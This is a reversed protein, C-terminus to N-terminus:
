KIYVGKNMENYIDEAIYNNAELTRFRIIQAKIFTESDQLYEQVTGVVGINFSRLELYEKFAKIEEETASYKEIFPFVKNNFTFAPCRTLNYPLARINDLQFEHMDIALDKQEAQRKGLIALDAVGAAASAATGLVAGAAIGAPGAIAGAAGGSVAGQGTGAIAGVVAEIKQFRHEKDMSEINRNFMSEYNKNNLEYEQFRDTLQGYSFDGQCILGRADNFDSGYMNKFNPNIHIYPNFPRLTVDVNFYNVGGNKAVCFEFTGQYNPSVLRYIDCESDVKTSIDTTGKVFQGFKIFDNLFFAWNNSYHTYVDPWGENWPLVEVTFYYDSAEYVSGDIQRIPTGGAKAITMTYEYPAEIDSGDTRLLSISHADFEELLENTTRSRRRIRLNNIDNGQNVNEYTAVENDSLSPSNLILTTIYYEDRSRIVPTKFGVRVDEAEVEISQDINFTFSSDQVYFMIGIRNNSSDHVYDFLKGEDATNILLRDNNGDILAQVPCFPLLQIDYISGSLKAGLTVALNKQLEEKTTFTSNNQDKVQIDGCPIAIIDYMGNFCKARNASMSFTDTVAMTVEEYSLTINYCLAGCTISNTSISSHGAAFIGSSSIATSLTTFLAAGTDDLTYEIRSSGGTVVKVRYYKNDNNNKIIKGNLDLIKNYNTTSLLQSNKTRLFQNMRSILISFGINNAIMSLLSFPVNAKAVGTRLAVNVQAYYDNSVVNGIGSIITKYVLGGATGGPGNQWIIGLQNGVPVSLYEGAVIPFDDVTVISTNKTPDLLLPEDTIAAANTPIYAVIWPIKTKDKLLTESMKIRNFSFNESNFILPNDMSVRAREIIAPASIVDDYKDAIVDRKLTLNWQGGRVRDAKIIFWRSVINYYTDDSYVVLYDFEFQQETLNGTGQYKGCIHHTIVQDGPNFNADLQVMNADSNSAYDAYSTEIKIRRNFYNNYKLYQIVSM